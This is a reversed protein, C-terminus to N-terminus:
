AKKAIIAPITDVVLRAFDSLTKPAEIPGVAEHAVVVLAFPGHGLPYQEVLTIDGSPTGVVIMRRGDEAQAKIYKGSDMVDSGTLFAPNFDVYDCLQLSCGFQEELAREDAAAQQQATLNNMAVNNM